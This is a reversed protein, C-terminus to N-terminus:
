SNFVQRFASVEKCGAQLRCPHTFRKLTPQFLTQDLGCAQM